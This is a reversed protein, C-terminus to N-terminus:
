SRALCAPMGLRNLAQVLAAEVRDPGLAQLREKQKQIVRQRLGRDTTLLHAMEAVRDYGLDTFLVGADGLTEPTAAAKRALIPVGFHMCEILPVCFGEHFSASVYLDAARYYAALEADSVRGVFVVCEALGLGAVLRDLQADYTPLYRSGVIDLRSHANIFRHYVYFIRIVDEIAKNPVVRGVTLWNVTGSDGARARPADPLKPLFIPLVGTAEPSFGAEILEQRNFESDGLALDCDRLTHLARRGAECLLAQGADWRRFFHPPTINHYILLRRGRAARFLRTNPSYISYHYILLDDRAHLHPAFDADSRVRGVMEPAVHQAYIATEYGWARLRADIELAHNAIADGMMMGYAMQHVRM